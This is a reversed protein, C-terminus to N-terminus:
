AVGGAGDVVVAVDACSGKAREEEEEEGDDAVVVVVVYPAECGFCTPIWRFCGECSLALAFCTGFSLTAGAGAGAAGDYSGKAAVVGGGATGAAPPRSGNALRPPPPPPIGVKLEAGAKAAGGGGAPSGKAWGEDKPKMPAFALAFPFSSGKAPRLAGDDKGGGCGIPWRGM